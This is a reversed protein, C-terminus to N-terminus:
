LMIFVLTIPFFALFTLIPIFRIGSFFGIVTPLKINKYRNYLFATVFGVLIGGFVSSSLQNFGLVNQFLSTQLGASVNKGVPSYRGLSGPLYFLLNYGVLDGNENVPTILAAQLSSFVLFAIITALAAPGSDGTFTIAIAIAFLLPLAGFIAGGPISLFNGFIKLGESNGANTAISAGVGLFVGAIPLMSIPLMLGRSM